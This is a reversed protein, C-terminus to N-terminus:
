TVLSVKVIENELEYPVRSPNEGINVNYLDTRKPMNPIYVLVSCCPLSVVM